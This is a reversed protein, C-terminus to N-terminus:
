YQGKRIPVNSQVQIRSKGYNRIQIYTKNQRVAFIRFLM